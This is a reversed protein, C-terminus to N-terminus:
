HKIANRWCSCSSTLADELAEVPLKSVTSRFTACGPIRKVARVGLAPHTLLDNQPACTGVAVDRTVWVRIWGDALPSQSPHMAALIVVALLGYLPYRRGRRHRPNPIAELAHIVNMARRM